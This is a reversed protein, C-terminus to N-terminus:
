KFSYKLIWTLIKIGAFISGKITGSVKSVGIRNRYKVPIEEYRCGHKLIKLQMEVTWGYTPDEMKLSLLTDFKIARFPGLDTFKSKFLLRMLFTALWNGFIQQPQMAGKERLHKDRSGIVFDIDKEIIPAIIKTLEEPSDSYDGDLFVVINTKTKQQKIYHIGKLCANGYGSKLETLVTAGALAANKVTADTSNNNVVIIENVLDPLDKIVKGISDAENYAPIIVKIIGIDRRSKNQM